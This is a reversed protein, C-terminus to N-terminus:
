TYISCLVLSCSGLKNFTFVQGGSLLVVALKGESIAKLGRKWWREREELTRAEVTSVSAEPVPEVAPLTLGLYKEGLIFLECQSFSRSSIRFHVSQVDDSLKLLLGFISVEIDKVLLSREEPSLEDWFAFADEQGYDKLRELLAQPPPPPPSPTGRRGVDSGVVIEKM